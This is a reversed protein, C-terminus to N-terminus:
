SEACAKTLLMLEVFNCEVSFTDQVAYMYKMYM